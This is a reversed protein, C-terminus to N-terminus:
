SSTKIASQRKYVEETSEPGKSLIDSLHKRGRYTVGTSVFQFLSNNGFIDIDYSYNDEDNVFEEGCDEFNKWEGQLRKISKENVGILIDLYKKRSKVNDHLFIIYLFLLATILISSIVLYYLKINYLYISISAGLAFVIFRLTSIRNSINVLKQGKSAYKKKRREYSSMPTIM